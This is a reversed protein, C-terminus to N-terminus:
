LPLETAPDFDEISDGDADPGNTDSTVCSLEFPFTYVNLTDPPTPTSYKPVCYERNDIDGHDYTAPQAVDEIRKITYTFKDTKTVTDDDDEDYFRKTETRNYVGIFAPYGSEFTYTIDTESETESDETVRPLERKVTIRSSGLSYSINDEDEYCGQDQLNEVIEQNTTTDYKIFQNSFSSGDELRLRFYVIPAEVKWVYLYSTDIETDGKSYKLEWTDGRRFDLMKDNSNEYFDEIDSNTRSICKKAARDRLIDRAEQSLKDGKQVQEECASLSLLVLLIFSFRTKSNIVAM